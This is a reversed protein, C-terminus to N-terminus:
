TVFGLKNQMLLKIFHEYEVSTYHHFKLLNSHSVNNSTLHQNRGEDAVSAFRSPVESKQVNVRPFILSFITLTPEIFGFLPPPTSRRTLRLM